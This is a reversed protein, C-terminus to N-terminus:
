DMELKSFTFGKNSFHALFKPLAYKLNKSAKLSDHFVVISGKKTLEISNKYCKEPSINNDFDYTLVSWMIISYEKKISKIQLPGIRGYPPRFLNSNIYEKAKQINQFYVNNNTEWGKLHNYTHNGVSHGEELIKKQTDPYKCVNEGVCFFTAKANYKKLCDLVWPTIEPNPGDDFTLFIEKKDTSIDWLLSPYLLKLIAPSKAFM